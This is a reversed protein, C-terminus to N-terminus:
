CRKGPLVLHDGYRWKGALKTSADPTVLQDVISYETRENEKGIEQPRLVMVRSALKARSNFVQEAPLSIARDLDAADTRALAQRTLLLRGKKALRSTM